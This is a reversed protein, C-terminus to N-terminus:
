LVLFFIMGAFCPRAPDPQEARVAATAPVSTPQPWSAYCARIAMRVPEAQPVQDAQLLSTM